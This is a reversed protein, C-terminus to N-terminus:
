LNNWKHTLKSKNLFIIDLQNFLDLNYASSFLLSKVSIDKRIGLTLHEEAGQFKDGKSDTRHKSPVQILSREETHSLM